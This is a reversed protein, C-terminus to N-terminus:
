YCRLVCCPCSAYHRRFNMQNGWFSPPPRSGCRSACAGCTVRLVNHGRFAGRWYCADGLAALLAVAGFIFGLAGPLGDITGTSSNVDVFGFTISLLSITLAFFMVCVDIWHSERVRRRVTLLATTVLYFTLMGAIVSIREPKLAAMVAGSSSLVLMAYVFIMGSKRHLKAGKPASLAVAGSTLGVLGGILHLLIM